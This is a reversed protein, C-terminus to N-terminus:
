YSYKGWCFINVLYMYLSLRRDLVVVITLVAKPYSIFTLCASVLNGFKYGKARIDTILKELIKTLKSGSMKELSASLMHMGYLFLALGGVLALVMFIDM